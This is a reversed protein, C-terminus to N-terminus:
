LSSSGSSKYPTVVIGLLHRFLFLFGFIKIGICHDKGGDVSGFYKRLFSLHNRNFWNLQETPM